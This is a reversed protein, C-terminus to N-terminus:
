GPNIVSLHPILSFHRSNLTIVPVSRDLAAQAVFYDPLDITIGSARLEASLRGARISLNTDAPLSRFQSLLNWAASAAEPNRAGQLLEFYTLSVVALSGTLSFEELITEVQGIGRLLAILISSDVVASIRPGPPM